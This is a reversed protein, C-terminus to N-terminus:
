SRSSASTEARVPGLEMLAAGILARGVAVAVALPQEGGLHAIEGQGDGFQPLAAEEGVPELRAAPDVLDEVGHHHLGIWRCNPQPAL